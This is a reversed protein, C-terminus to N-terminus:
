INLKPKSLLVYVNIIATVIFGYQKTWLWRDPANEYVRDCYGGKLVRFPKSLITLYINEKKINLLKNSILTLVCRHYYVYMVVSMLEYTNLLMLNTMSIRNKTILVIIISVITYIVYFTLSNHLVDLLLFGIKRLIPRDLKTLYFEYEFFAYWLLILIVINPYNKPVLILYIISFVILLIEKWYLNQKLKSNKYREDIVTIDKNVSTYIFNSDKTNNGDYDYFINGDRDIDIETEVIYNGLSDYNHRLYSILFDKIVSQNAVILNTDIFTNKYYHYQRQIIYNNIVKGDENVKAVLLKNSELNTLEKLFILNPNNLVCIIEKEDYKYLESLLESYGGVVEITPISKHLLSTRDTVFTFVKM